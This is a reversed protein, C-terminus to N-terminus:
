FRFGGMMVYPVKKTRKYNCKSVSAVQVLFFGPLMINM